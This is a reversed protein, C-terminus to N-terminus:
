RDDLPKGTRQQWANAQELMERLVEPQQAVSLIIGRRNFWPRNIQM